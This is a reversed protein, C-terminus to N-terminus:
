LQKKVATRFSGAPVVVEFQVGNGPTGTETITFGPIALLERVLYLGYGIKKGKIPQFLVPRITQPIGTGNDRYVIIAGKDGPRWQLSVESVTTGHRLSNDILQYFVTSLQPDCFLELEQCTPDITIQVGMPDILSRASQFTDYLNIWKPVQSGLDKYEKTFTIMKQIKGAAELLITVIQSSPITGDNEEMLSLYGNLVTLQNNIDHRITSNMLNIKINAQRIIEETQKGARTEGILCIM